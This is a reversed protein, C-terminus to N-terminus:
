EFIVRHLEQGDPFDHSCGRKRAEKFLEMSRAIDQPVGRGRLYCKGLSSFACPFGQVMARRFWVIAEKLLNIKSGPNNMLLNALDVQHGPHGQNAAKRLWQIAENTSKQGDQLAMGLNNEAEADGDQAGLRFLRVAEELDVEVGIGDRYMVGLDNQSESSGQDASTKMLQFAKDEDVAVGGEGSIYCKALSAQSRDCGSQSAKAYWMVGEKKDKSVGKGNFFAWGVDYVNYGQRASMRYWVAAQHPDKGVGLEGHAYCEAVRYQLAPKPKKKKKKKQCILRRLRKLEKKHPGTVTPFVANCCGSKTCDMRKKIKNKNDNLFMVAHHM